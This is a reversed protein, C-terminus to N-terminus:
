MQIGHITFKLLDGTFDLTYTFGNQEEVDYTGQPLNIVQNVSTMTWLTGDHSKISLLPKSNGLDAGYFMLGITGDMNKSLAVKFINCVADQRGKVSVSSLLPMYGLAVLPIDATNWEQEGKSCAPCVIQSDGFLQSLEMKSAADVRDLYNSNPMILRDSTLLVKGIRTIAVLNLANVTTGMAHAIADAGVQGSTYRSAVEALDNVVYEQALAEGTLGGGTEPTYGSVDLRTGDVLVPEGNPSVVVNQTHDVTMMFKQGTLPDTYEQVASKAVTAWQQITPRAWTPDIKAAEELSIGFVRRFVVSTGDAFTVVSAVKGPPLVGDLAKPVSMAEIAAKTTADLTDVYQQWFAAYARPSLEYHPHELSAIRTVFVASRVSGASTEASDFFVYTDPDAPNMRITVWKMRLLNVDIGKQQFTDLEEKLFYDDLITANNKMGRYIIQAADAPDYLQKAAPQPVVPVPSTMAPACASILVSLVVLLVIFKWTRTNM